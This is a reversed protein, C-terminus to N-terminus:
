INRIKDDTDYEPNYKIKPTLLHLLFVKSYRYNVPTLVLISLLIATIYLWPSKDNGTILYTLLGVNLMEGVVFAYSVYMAGYFYGPEVEFRMGCHSCNENTTQLNLGYLSGSFINGRRCRPCKAKVIAEFKSTKAM